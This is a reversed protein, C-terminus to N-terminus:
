KSTKHLYILLISFCVVYPVYTLIYTSIKNIMRTSKRTPGLKGTSNEDYNGLVGETEPEIRGNKAELFGIYHHIFLPLGVPYVPSKLPPNKSFCTAAVAAIRGKKATFVM